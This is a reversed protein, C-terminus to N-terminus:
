IRKEKQQDSQTKEAEKYKLDSFENEAEHDKSSFRQLKNKMETLADQM